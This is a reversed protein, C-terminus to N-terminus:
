KELELLIKYYLQMAHSTLQLIHNEHFLWHVQGALHQNNEETL